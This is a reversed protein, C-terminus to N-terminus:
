LLLVLIVIGNIKIHKTVKLFLGNNNAYDKIRPDQRIAKQFNNEEIVWHSLHYKKHWEKIVRLAEEIGGGKNNEIDVMQIMADEGDDLIAWM